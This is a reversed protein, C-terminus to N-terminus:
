NLEIQVSRAPGSRVRRAIEAAVTRTQMIRLLQGAKSRINM